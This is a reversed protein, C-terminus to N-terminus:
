TNHQAWHIIIPEISHLNFGQEAAIKKEKSIEWKQYPNDYQAELFQYVSQEAINLKSGFLFLKHQATQQLVIRISPRITKFFQDRYVSYRKGTTKKILAAISTGNANKSYGINKGITSNKIRESTVTAKKETTASLSTTQVAEKKLLPTKKKGREKPTAITKKKEKQIVKETNKPRKEKVAEKKDKLVIKKKPVTKKKQRESSPQKQTQKKWIARWTRQLYLDGSMSYYYGRAINSLVAHLVEEDKWKRMRGTKVAQFISYHNTNYKRSYLLITNEFAGDMYKNWYKLTYALVKDEIRTIAASIEITQIQDATFTIKSFDFAPVTYKQKKKKHLKRRQEEKFERVSSLSDTVYSRIIDAAIQMEKEYYQFKQAYRAYKESFAIVAFRDDAIASIVKECVQILTHIEAKKLPTITKVFFVIIKKAQVTTREALHILSETLLVSFRPDHKRYYTMLLVRTSDDPYRRKIKTNYLQLAEAQRNLARFEFYREIDADETLSLQPFEQKLIYVDNDTLKKM